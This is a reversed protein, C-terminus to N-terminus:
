PKAGILRRGAVTIELHTLRRGKHNRFPSPLEARRVFGYVELREVVDAPMAQLVVPSSALVRLWALPLEYQPPMDPTASATM